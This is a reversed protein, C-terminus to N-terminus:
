TNRVNLAGCYFPQEAMRSIGRGPWSPLAATLILNVDVNEFYPTM